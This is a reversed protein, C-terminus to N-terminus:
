IRPRTFRLRAFWAAGIGLQLWGLWPHRAGLALWALGSLWLAAAAIAADRRRHDRELAAKLAAIEASQVAFRLEGDAAARVGAKVIKPLEKLAEITDPLQARLAGFLTRPSM